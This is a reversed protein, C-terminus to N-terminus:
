PSEERVLVVDLPVAENAEIQVEAEWPYYGALHVEVEYHGPNLNVTAPTSNLIKGDVLVQAGSPDSRVTMRGTAPMIKVPPLPAPPEPPPFVPRLWWVAVVVCLVLVFVTLLLLPRRGPASRKAAAPETPRQQPQRAFKALFGDLAEVFEQGTQYRVGPDKALAKLIVTELGHPVDPRHTSPRPPAAKEIDQFIAVLNTGTFPKQGTVMEYLITGLSFIDARGDVREGRVQEPSMYAPTGLISGVQTQESGPADQMRAIGFDTIKVRNGHTVIINNPKIDRHIVGQRHAYDLALAVQRALDVALEVPLVTNKMLRDLGDGQVLEMAIYVTGHDQGVDYVVVIGPHSLRGAAKAERLFRRVLDEDAVRDERLVKLAIARDIKPDLAQFVVGMSGRGLEERIEYRGYKEIHPAASM